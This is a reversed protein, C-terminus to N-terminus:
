SKGEVLVRRGSKLEFLNKVQWKEDRWSAPRTVHNRRVVIDSPVLNQIAPVDGGFLINEGAAELYNNEISVPRPRELRCDGSQGPRRGQNRLHVLRHHSDFRELGIGRKQGTAPDGHIYCRDIVLDHPVRSLSSQGDSGDGLDIITGAGGANSQFELLELRWHHAGPATRLAATGNASRIKALRGARNRAHHALGPARRRRRCDRDTGTIHQAIRRNAPVGM